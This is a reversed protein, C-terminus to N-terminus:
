ISFVTGTPVHDSGDFEHDIFSSVVCNKLEPSCIVYDLRLKRGRDLGYTWRHHYDTINPNVYDWTDIWGVNTIFHEMNWREEPTTGACTPANKNMDNNKRAVNLDGIWIVNNHKQRLQSLYEIMDKDWVLVRYGLRRLTDGRSVGSNPVYTGVIVVENEDKTKCKITIIRGETQQAKRMTDILNSTDCLGQSVKTKNKMSCLNVDTTQVVRPLYTSIISIDLSKKYVIGIGHYYSTKNSSWISGYKSDIQQSTMTEHEQRIKTETLVLIDIDHKNLLNNVKDIKNRISNVNWTWINM